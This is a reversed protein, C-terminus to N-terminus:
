MRPLLAYRLNYPSRALSHVRFFPYFLYKRFSFPRQLYTCIIQYPIRGNKCKEIQGFSQAVHRRMCKYGKCKYGEATWGTWFRTSGRHCKLIRYSSKGPKAPSNRNRRRQRKKRYKRDTYKRGLSLSSKRKLCKEIYRFFLQMWYFQSLQKNM